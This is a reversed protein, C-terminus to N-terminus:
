GPSPSLDFLSVFDPLHSLWWYFICRTPQNSISVTSKTWVTAVTSVTPNTLVTSAISVASVTKVTSDALVTSVTSDISVTLRNLSILRNLSRLKRLINVSHVRNHLCSPRNLSNLSHTQKSEQSKQSLQTLQSHESQQSQIVPSRSFTDSVWQSVSKSVTQLCATSACRFLKHYIKQSYDKSATYTKM